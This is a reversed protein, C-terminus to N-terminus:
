FQYSMQLKQLYTKNILTIIIYMTNYYIDLLNLLLQVNLFFTDM